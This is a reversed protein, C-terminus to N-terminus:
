KPLIVKRDQKHEKIKQALIASIINMSTLIDTIPAQEILSLTGIYGALLGEYFAKSQDNNFLKLLNEKVSPHVQELKAILDPIVGNYNHDIKFPNKEM